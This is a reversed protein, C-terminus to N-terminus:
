DIVIAIYMTIYGCLVEEVVRRIIDGRRMGKTLFKKMERINKLLKMCIKLGRGEGRGVLGEVM